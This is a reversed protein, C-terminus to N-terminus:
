RTQYGPGALLIQTIVRKGDPGSGLAVLRGRLDDAIPIGGLHDAIEDLFADDAKGSLLGAKSVLGGALNFRSVQNSPSIWAPGSPWGSVNPPRFITMDQAAMMGVLQEGTIDVTLGRLIGVTWAAPNKVHASTAREVTFADSTFLARLVARIEGGTANWADLMPALDAATPDDGVFWVFLKQVTRKATQPKNALLRSFDDLNFNGTQGLITKTGDDFRQPNFAVKGDYALTWGTSARAGERVDQETYNGIGLTFLEMVERSWNENPHGKVNTQNDLWILMAPDKSVAILLDVFKGAGQARLLQNQGLMYAPRDVKDLSTAFHNHWFLALNEQLPTPSTRLRDAWWALLMQNGKARANNRERQTAIASKTYSAKEDAGLFTTPAVPWPPIPPPSASEDPYNLIDEVAQNYGKATAADVQTPTAGFGARWLLLQVREREGM